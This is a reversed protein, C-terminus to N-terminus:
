SAVHDAIRLVATIGFSSDPAAQASNVGESDIFEKLTM